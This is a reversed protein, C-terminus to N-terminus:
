QRELTKLYDIIEDVQKPEFKFEPMTAHGTAIGEGLAEQLNEVCTTLGQSRFWQDPTAHGCACSNWNTMDLQGEPVTSLVRKLEKFGQVNVTAEMPGWANTDRLSGVSKRAFQLVHPREPKFDRPASRAEWKWAGPRATLIVGGLLAVLGPLSRAELRNPASVSARPERAWRPAM